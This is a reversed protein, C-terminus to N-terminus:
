CPPLVNQFLKEKVNGAPDYLAVVFATKGEDVFAVGVGLRTMNKWVVQTFHCTSMSFIPM